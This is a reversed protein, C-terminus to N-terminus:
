NKNTYHWLLIGTKSFKKSAVRANRKRTVGDKQFHHTVSWPVDAYSAEQNRQRQSKVWIM